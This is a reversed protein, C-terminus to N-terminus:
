KEEGWNLINISAVAYAACSVKSSRALFQKRRKRQSGRHLVKFKETTLNLNMM